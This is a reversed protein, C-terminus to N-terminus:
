KKFRNKQAQFIRERETMKGQNLPIVKTIKENEKDGPVINKFAIFEKEIKNIAATNEAEKKNYQETLNVVEQNKAELQTKLNALEEKLAQVNEAETVATITGGEVTISRGDKLKHTGDPAPDGPIGETVVFVQQGVLEGDGSASLVTGDELELSVENKIKLSTKFANLLRTIIGAQKNQAEEINKLKENEMKKNQLINQFLEQKDTWFPDVTNIHVNKTKKPEAEKTKYIGHAFGLKIAKKSGLDTDAGMLALLESRKEEGLVDCYADLIKRDTKAIDIAMQNLDEATLYAGGLDYTDIRANHIIFEANESVYRKTGALFPMVAISNVRYGITTIKKGSAKILDYMEFGETVHGGDSSIVFALEPSEKNDDIFKRVDDASTVLEEGGFMGALPDPPAITGRITFKPINGIDV